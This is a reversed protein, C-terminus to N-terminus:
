TAESNDRLWKETFDRVAEAYEATTYTDAILNRSGDPEEVWIRSGGHPYVTQRLDGVYGAAAASAPSESTQDTTSMNDNM